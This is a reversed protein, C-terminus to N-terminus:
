GPPQWAGAWMPITNNEVCHSHTAASYFMLRLGIILGKVFVLGKTFCMFWVVDITLFSDFKSEFIGHVFSCIWGVNNPPQELIGFQQNEAYTTSM